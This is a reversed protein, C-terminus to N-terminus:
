DRLLEWVCAVCLGFVPWVCAVYLGRVCAVSVPWGSFATSPCYRAPSIINVVVMTPIFALMQLVVVPATLFCLGPQLRQAGWFTGNVTRLM